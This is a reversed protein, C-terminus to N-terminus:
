SKSLLLFLLVMLSLLTDYRNGLIDKFTRNSRVMHKKVANRSIGLEAAVEDYSKHQERVLRFINRTQAPLSDLVNQIFQDYEVSLLKKDADEQVPQYHRVMEGKAANESAAKKLLNITYNRGIIFLYDRISDIDTLLNRSDWLRIFIEQTIDETLEPSKVYKIVFGYVFDNYKKYIYEFANQNGDAVEQLLLKENHLTAQVM